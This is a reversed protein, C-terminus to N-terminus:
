GRRQDLLKSLRQSISEAEHELRNIETLVQQEATMLKVLTSRVNLWDNCWAHVAGSISIPDNATAAAGVQSLVKGLPEYMCRDSAFERDTDDPHQQMQSLSEQLRAIETAADDLRDLLMRGETLTMGKHREIRQRIAEITDVTNNNNRM